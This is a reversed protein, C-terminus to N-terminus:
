LQYINKLKYIHRFKKYVWYNYTYHLAIKNKDIVIKENTESILNHIEIIIDCINVIDLGDTLLTGILLKTREIYTKLIEYCFKTKNFITLCRKNNSKWQKYDIENKVHRERHRELNLKHERHLNYMVQDLTNDYLYVEQFYDRLFIVSDEHLKFSVVKDMFVRYSPIYVFYNDNRIIQNTNRMWEYYHPNHVKEKTLMGTKWSFTTHCESCWMQDCGDIKSIRIGCNENPCKRTKNELERVSALDSENCTHIYQSSKAKHCLICFLTKCDTCVMKNSIFGDCNTIMCRSFYKFRSTRIQHEQKSLENYKMYIEEINANKYKISRVLEYKQQTLDNLTDLKLKTEGLLLEEQKMHTNLQKLELQKIFSKNTTMTLIEINDLREKCNMCTTYLSKDDLTYRKFCMFCCEFNCKVCKIDKRLKKTFNEFCINCEKNCKKSSTILSM